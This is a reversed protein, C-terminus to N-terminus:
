STPPLALPRRWGHGLGIEADHVTFALADGVTVNVTVIVPRSTGDVRQTPRVLETM